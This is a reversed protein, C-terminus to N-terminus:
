SSASFELKEGTSRKECLVDIENWGVEAKEGKHEGEGELELELKPDLEPDVDTSVRQLLLM